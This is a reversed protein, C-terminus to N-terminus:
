AVVRWIGDQLQTLISCLGIPSTDVVIRTKCEKCFYALTEAKSILRKLKNFESEQEPGWYIKADKRTLDWMPRRINVLDPIFKASYQVLGMFSRPEIANQPPRAAQIAAIKEESADIGRTSFEHGFFFVKSLRSQCQKKNLTLGCVSQMCLVTDLQGDMSRRARAM